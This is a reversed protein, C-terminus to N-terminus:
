EGRWLKQGHVFRTTKLIGSSLYSSYRSLENVIFFMQKFMTNPTDLFLAKLKQQNKFFLNGKQKDWDYIQVHTTLPQMDSMV